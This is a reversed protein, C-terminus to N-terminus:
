PVIKILPDKQKPDLELRYNGRRATDVFTLEVNNGIGQIYRYRWLELPGLSIVSGDERRLAALAANARQDPEGHLILTRGRDTLWGRIGSPTTFRQNADAIRRYYESRFENDATGPTPDRRQWFAAIFQEREEDTRLGQFTNREESSAIDPVEQDVWAVLFQRTAQVPDAIQRAVSPAPSLPQLSLPSAEATAMMPEMAQMLLPMTVASLLVATWAMSRSQPTRIRFVRLVIWVTAGLALSRVAAELLLAVM